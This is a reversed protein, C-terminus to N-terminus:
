GNSQLVVLGLRVSVTTKMLQEFGSASSMFSSLSAVSLKQVLNYTIWAQVYVITLSELCAM